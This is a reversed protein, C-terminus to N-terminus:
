QLSLSVRFILAVFRLASKSNKLVIFPIHTVKAVKPLRRTKTEPEEFEDDM